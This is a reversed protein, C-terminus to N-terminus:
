WRNSGFKFIITSWYIYYTILFFALYYRIDPYLFNLLTVIIAPIILTREAYIYIMANFANLFNDLRKEPLKQQRYEEILKILREIEFKLDEIKRNRDVYKILLDATSECQEHSINIQNKFNKNLLKPEISYSILAKLPNLTHVYSSAEICQKELLEKQHVLFSEEKYLEFVLEQLKEEPILEINSQWSEHIKLDAITIIKDNIPIGANTYFKKAVNKNGAPVFYIPHVKEHHPFTKLWSVVKSMMLTGVRHGQIKLPKIDIGGHGSPSHKSVSAPYNYFRSNNFGAYFSCASSNWRESNKDRFDLNITLKAEINLKGDYHFQKEESKINLVIIGLFSGTERHNLRYIEKTEINTTM